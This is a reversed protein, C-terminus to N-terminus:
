FNKCCFLSLTAFATYFYCNNLQYSFICFHQSEDWIYLKWCATWSRFPHSTSFIAQKRIKHIAPFHCCFPVSMPELFCTRDWKCVICVIFAPKWFKEFLTTWVAGPALPCKSYIPGQVVLFALSYPAQIEHRIGAPYLREIGDPQLVTTEWLPAKLESGDKVGSPYKVVLAGSRHSFWIQFLQNPQDPAHHVINELHFVCFCGCIGWQM